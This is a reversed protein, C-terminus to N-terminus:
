ISEHKDGDMWNIFWSHLQKYDNQLIVPIKDLEVAESSIVLRVNELKQLTIWDEKCNLLVIKEYAGEKFGEILVLEPNESSALTILENLTANQKRQHLQIIGGGYAVSCNAGASFQRVSDTKNNPMDLVGGHGHHKITSVTKGEHKAQKLLTLLLTTKGSNKYGVIQLVKVAAM